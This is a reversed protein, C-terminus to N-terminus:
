QPNPIVQLHPDRQKAADVKDQPINHFGGQSDQIRVMGTPVPPQNQAAPHAAAAPAVTQPQQFLTGGSNLSNLTRWSEPDDQELGLHRAAALAQPTIINPINRGSLSKYRENMNDLRIAGTAAIQKLADNVQGPTSSLSMAKEYADQMTQSPAYGGASLLKFEDKLVSQAVAIKNLTSGYTHQNLKNLATNLFAPDGGRGSDRMVDQLNAAHRLVNNYQEIADGKKGGPLIAKYEAKLAEFNQQSWGPNIQKLIGLVQESSLGPALHTLRNPTLDKISFDGPEMAMSYLFSQTNKGYQGLLAQQDPRLAHIKDQMDQTMIGENAQDQSAEKRAKEREISEQQVNHRHAEIDSEKYTQLIRGAALAQSTAQGDKGKQQALHDLATIPDDRHAGLWPNVASLDAAHQKTQTESLQALDEERNQKKLLNATAQAASASTMMHDFTDGDLQTGEPVPSGSYQSLLKAADATVTVPGGQRQFITYTPESVLKGNREVQTMGTQYGIVKSPDYKGGPKFEPLMQDETVGEGIVAHHARFADTAAKGAAVHKDMAEEDLRSASRQLAVTQAQTYANLVDNRNQSQKNEFEQQTKKDQLEKQNQIRANHNQITEVIGSLAGGGPKTSADGLGALATQAGGIISRAWSGPEPKGDPQLTLPTKDLARALKSGFSGPASAPIGSLPSLGGASVPMEPATPVPAEAPAAPPAAGALPSETQALASIPFQSVDIM